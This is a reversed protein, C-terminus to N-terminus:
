TVQYLKHSLAAPGTEASLTASESPLLVPTEVAREVSWKYIRLRSNLTSSKLGSLESLASLSYKKGRYEWLVNSHTNNNQTKADAWVCNEKNYNGDADLRELSAGLFPKQGMDKLFGEFTEWELCVSIGKAGYYQYRNNTPSQCRKKMNQWSQYTSTGAQGHTTQNGEARLCGCSKANGRLLSLKAVEKEVGCVCRVVAFLGKGSGRSTWDSVVTLRGFMSGIPPNPITPTKKKFLPVVLDDGEQSAPMPMSVRVFETSM